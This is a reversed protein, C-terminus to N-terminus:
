RGRIVSLALWAVSVSGLALILYLVWRLRSPAEVPVALAAAGGLELAAGTRALPPQWEAGARDRQAQVLAEIPAEARTATASGAALRFPAPGEAAFVLHEPLHGLELRPAPLGPTDGVLRWHRDRVSRDLATPPGHTVTGADRLAWAVTEPGRPRWPADADDRSYLRWRQASTGEPVATWLVIAERGARTYDVTTGGSSAVPEGQLAIWQPTAPAREPSLEAEVAGFAPVGSGSVLSLRLYPSRLPAGTEIRDQRIRHGDHVRDVLRIGAVVTRWNELDESADLRYSADIGGHESPWDLRLATVAAGAGSADVLLGTAAAAAGTGAQAEVSALRAQADIRTVVRWDSDPRGDHSPVPFVPLRVRRAPAAAPLVTQLASPQQRGEADLVVLDRLQPDRATAYVEADLEVRHLPAQPQELELPWGTAFRHEAPSAQANPAFALLLTGAVLAHLPTM